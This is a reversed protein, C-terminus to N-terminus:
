ACQHLRGADTATSVTRPAAVAVWVCRLPNSANGTVVWTCSLSVSNKVLFLNTKM